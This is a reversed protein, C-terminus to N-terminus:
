PPNALSPSSPLPWSLPNVLSPHGALSMLLVGLSAGLRSRGVQPKENILQALQAQTLKKAMRAQIIQKKLDSSVRTHALEETENELKAANKVPGAKNSVNAGATFKKVTEIDAGSRRAANVASASQSQAATPAKKRVVM